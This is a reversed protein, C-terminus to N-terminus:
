TVSNPVVEQEVELASIQFEEPEIRCPAEIQGLMMVITAISM